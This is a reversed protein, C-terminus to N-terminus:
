PATLITVNLGSEVYDTAVYVFDLGADCSIQGYAANDVFVPGGSDGLLVLDVGQSRVYIFASGGSVCGSNDKGFIYGCAYGGNRGYKCALGGIVQSSWFTRSTIDRTGSPQNPDVIWNRITFQSGTHWQEDHNFSTNESQFTLATGAYSMDNACHGATTVGRDATGNRNVGFGSTCTNQGDLPLGGYLFASPRLLSSVQVVVASAPLRVGRAQLLARFTTPSLVRIQLQNSQVDISLDAEREVAAWMLAAMEARLLALSRPVDRGEAMAELSTGAAHRRLTAASDRTFAAVVRFQPAQQLWLGAFTAGETAALERELKGAQAQVMLRHTAETVSIGAMAAFTQADQSAPTQAQARTSSTAAIMLAVALVATRRMWRSRVVTDM